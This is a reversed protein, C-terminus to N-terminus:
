TAHISHLCSGHPWWNRLPPPKRSCGRDAGLGARLVEVTTYVDCGRINKSILTAIFLSSNIVSYLLSPYRFSQSSMGSIQVLTLMNTRSRPLLVGRRQPNWCGFCGLLNRHSKGMETCDFTLDEQCSVVALCVSWVNCCVIYESKPKKSNIISRSTLWQSPHLVLKCNNNYNSRMPLEISTPPIIEDSSSHSGFLLWKIDIQFKIEWCVCACSDIESMIVVPLDIMYLAFARRFHPM